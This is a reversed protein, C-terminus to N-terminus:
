DHRHSNSIEMRIAYARIKMRLTKRNIGLFDATKTIQYNFHKLAKEIHDKEVDVLTMTGSFTDVVPTKTGQKQGYYLIDSLSIEAQECMVCLREMTNKLERVNGPWAYNVISKKAEDSLTRVKSDYRKGYYRLYFEAIPLIDARHERLPRIHIPLVSVRYFLDERFTGSAVLARLDRNTATILRVDIKDPISSGVRPVEQEQIARLLKAQVNLSINSIEDLFLSGKDAMQFRGDRTESAGTFSGKLHGFLESEMLNEVLSSCDVAIYPMAARSSLKHIMSAILEKGTGSEGTLLVTTHTQGVRRITDKLEKIYDSVGILHNLAEECPEKTQPPELVKAITKKLEQASFPKTLFDTAGLKMAEVSLPITGYATIIIIKARVKDRLRRLVELGDIKPLRLDLLIIEYIDKTAMSLGQHADGTTEVAFGARELTQYCGDRISDEDDIILVRKTSKNGMMSGENCQM